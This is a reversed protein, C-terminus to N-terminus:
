ILIGQSHMSSNELTLSVSQWVAAVNFLFAFAYFLTFHAGPIVYNGLETHNFYFDLFSFCFMFSWLLGCINNRGSLLPIQNNERQFCVARRIDKVLLISIHGGPISSTLDDFGSCIGGAEQFLWERPLWASNVGHLSSALPFLTLYFLSVSIVLRLQKAMGAFASSM